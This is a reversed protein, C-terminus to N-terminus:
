ETVPEEPETEEAEPPDTWQLQTIVAELGLPIDTVITGTIISGRNDHWHLILGKVALSYLPTDVHGASVGANALYAKAAEWLATIESDEEPSTALMYLKIEDLTLAAM